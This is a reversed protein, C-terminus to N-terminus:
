KEFKFRYLCYFVRSAKSFKIPSICFSSCLEKLKFDNKSTVKPSSVPIDRNNCSPSRKMMTLVNSIEKEMSNFTHINDKTCPENIINLMKNEIKNITNEINNEIVHNKNRLDKLHTLVIKQSNASRNQVTFNLFM